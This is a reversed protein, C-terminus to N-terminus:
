SSVKRARRRRPKAPKKAAPQESADEDAAEGAAEVADDALEAEDAAGEAADDDPGLPEDAAIADRELDGLLDDERALPDLEEPLEFPDSGQLPRHEGAANALKGSLEETDDLVEDRRRVLDAIVVEIDERRRTGEEVIRRAQAQADAVTDRADQEAEARVEAAEADSQKRTQSAYADAESRTKGAYTDAERRTQRGSADGEEIAERALQEAESRIQQASEEAKVLIAGTREAVRELERKVTESRSEDGGGTELWDALRALFKEVEHKDYGRRATPFTANRIRDLSTEDVGM